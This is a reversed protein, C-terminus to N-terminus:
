FCSFTNGGRFVATMEKSMQWCRDTHALWLKHTKIWLMGHELVWLAGPRFPKPKHRHSNSMMALCIVLLSLMDAMARWPQQHWYKASKALFASCQPNQRIVVRSITLPVSLALLYRLLYLQLSTLVAKGTYLCLLFGFRGEPLMCSLKKPSKIHLTITKWQLSM